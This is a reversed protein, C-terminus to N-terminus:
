RVDHIQTTDITANPNFCMGTSPCYTSDDVLPAPLLTLGVGFLVALMLKM